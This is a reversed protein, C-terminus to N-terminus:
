GHCEYHCKRCIDHNRLDQVLSNNTNRSAISYCINLYSHKRLTNNSTACCKARFPRTELEYRFPFSLFSHTFLPQFLTIHSSPELLNHNSHYFYCGRSSFCYLTRQCLLIIFTDVLYSLSNWHGDQCCRCLMM